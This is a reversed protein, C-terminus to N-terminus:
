ESVSIGAIGYAGSVYPRLCVAARVTGNAAYMVRETGLIAWTSLTTGGTTTYGPMRSQIVPWDIAAMTCAENLLIAGYTNSNAIGFASAFVISDPTIPFSVPIMETAVNATYGTTWVARTIARM